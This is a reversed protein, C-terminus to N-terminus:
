RQTAVTLPLRDFLANQTEELQTLTTSATQRSQDALHSLQHDITHMRKEKESLQIQVEQLRKESTGIQQKTQEIQGQQFLLQQILTDLATM